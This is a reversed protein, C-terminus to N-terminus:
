APPADPNLSKLSDKEVENDAVVQNSLPQDERTGPDVVIGPFDKADNPFRDEDFVNENM